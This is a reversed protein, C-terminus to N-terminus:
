KIFQLLNEMEDPFDKFNTSVYEKYFEIDEKKHPYSEKINYIDLVDKKWREDFPLDLYNCFEKLTSENFSHQYYHFFNSSLKKQYNFFLLFNDLVSKLIEQYTSNPNIHHFINSMGTNQNSMACDLPNRIPLIFVIKKNKNILDITNINNELFHNQLHLGEKWFLCNIKEKLLKDGFRNKYKEKVDLKDFAHSHLISGGVIGRKGSLSIQIAYKIFRNFRTESYNMFFNVKKHPLIRRQAHNLVQCNPHLVAMTASLSTLNRYPGFVLCITKIDSIDIDNSKRIEREQKLFFYISRIKLIIKQIM